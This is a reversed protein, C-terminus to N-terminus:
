EKIMKAVTYVRDASQIKIFYIGSPLGDVRTTLSASADPVVITQLIKGSMDVILLRADRPAPGTWQVTIEGSTPNPFVQVANMEFVLDKVESIILGCEGRLQGSTCGVLDFTETKVCGNCTATFVYHGPADVTICLVNSPGVIHGDSTTWQYTCIVGPPVNFLIGCLQAPQDDCIFCPGEVKTFCPPDIRIVASTDREDCCDNKVVCYYNGALLPGAGAYYTYYSPSPAAPPTTYVLVGDKYWDITVSCPPDPPQPTFQVAMAVGTPNCPDDFQATFSTIQLPDRVDIKLPVMDEPCVGNTSKVAYWTDQTLPNTNWYLSLTGAPLPQWNSGDPSECWTWSPPVPPFGSCGPTFHLTAEQGYCLLVPESPDVDLSGKPADDSYLRIRSQCGRQGCADTITVNYFFDQYCDVTPNTMSLGTTPQYPGNGFDVTNGDPDFWEINPPCANAPSNLSLTLLGPTIPTGTYCYDYGNLTCTGPACRQVCAVNSTLVKCPGDDLHVVAYVCLDGSLTGAPYLHLPELVNTYNNQFPAGGWPAIPCGGAPKPMVYWEVQTINYLTQGLAPSVPVDLTADTECIIENPVEIAKCCITPISFPLTCTYPLGTSPCTCNIQVTFNLALPINPTGVSILGYITAGGPFSNVTVSNLTGPLPTSLVYSCPSFGLPDTVNITFSYLDPTFTCDLTGSATGCCTNPVVVTHMVNCVTGLPDTITLCVNYTGGGCDYIHSTLPNSTILDPPGGSCDFDWKYTYNGPIPNPCSADFNVQFCNSTTWTFDCPCPDVFPACFDNCGFSCTQIIPPNAFNPPNIGVVTPTVANNNFFIPTTPFPFDVVCTGPFGLNLDYSGILMDWNGFGNPNNMRADAYFIRDHASTVSINGNAYSTEAGSQDELYRAWDVSLDNVGPHVFLNLKHVVQYNKPFQPTLNKNEGVVYLKGFQDKWIDKFRIINSFRLGPTAGPPTSFNPNLLMVFGEHVSFDEGVIALLYAGFGLPIELADYIDLVHPYTNAHVIAGTLGDVEIVVGNNSIDNGVMVVNGNSLTTLGRSFENEPPTLSYEYGNLLSGTLKDVHYLIVQEFQSPVPSPNKIGLVYFPANPNLPNPHRVIRDFRERGNHQYRQFDMLNGNGSIRAIFSQNDFSSSFPTTNGVIFLEDQTPEYDFDNIETHLEFCKEWVLAGTGLDFKTFTAYQDGASVRYGAVYIGDNFAKIATPRNEEANGYIKDFLVPNTQAPLNAGIALGLVLMIYIKKM